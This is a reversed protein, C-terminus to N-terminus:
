MQKVKKKLLITANATGRASLRLPKKVCSCLYIYKKAPAFPLHFKCIVIVPLESTLQGLILSLNLFTSYYHFKYFISFLM